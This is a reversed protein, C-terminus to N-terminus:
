REWSARENAIYAHIEEASDGYLGPTSGALEMLSPRKKVTERQTSLVVTGDGHSTVNLVDNVNINAARAVSAPLTIQHKERVRVQAPM